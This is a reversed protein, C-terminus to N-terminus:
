CPTGARRYVAQGANCQGLASCLGVATESCGLYLWGEPALQRALAALVARKTAEDFYILVNRCLVIDFAGLPAPDDLLNSVNFQCMARLPARIQWGEPVRDFHNILRKASLGRQVEFQTYIGSKARGLPTQAIDTGLIRVARGDLAEPNEAALMAISYAEQGSAAGASWVRVPQGPPRSAAAQPLGHAALHTFPSVDRFFLTENTTMAEVFEQALRPGDGRLREVLAGLGDLGERQLLPQLRTELLYSKDPGIVLGSNTRLLRALWDLAM